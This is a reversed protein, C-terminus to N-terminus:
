MTAVIAKALIDLEEVNNLKVASKLQIKESIFETNKWSTIIDTMLKGSFPSWSGNEILAVKRNQLNHATIDHLLTEMNVFIGM